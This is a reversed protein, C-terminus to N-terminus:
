SEHAYYEGYFSRSLKNKQCRTNKSSQKHNSSIILRLRIRGDISLDVMNFWKTFEFNRHNENSKAMKHQLKTVQNLKSKPKRKSVLVLKNTKYRKPQLIKSRPRQYSYNKIKKM